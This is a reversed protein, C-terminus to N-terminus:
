IDAGYDQFSVPKFDLDKVEECYTALRSGVGQKDIFYRLEQIYKYQDKIGSNIYRQCANILIDEDAFQPYINFFLLLKKKVGVLDGAIGSRNTKKFIEAMKPLVKDCLGQLDNPATKLANFSGASTIYGQEVLTAKYPKFHPNSDPSNRAEFAEALEPKNKYLYLLVQLDPSLPHTTDIIIKM